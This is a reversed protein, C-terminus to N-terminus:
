DKDTEKNELLIQEQIVKMTNQNNITNDTLQTTLSLTNTDQMGYYNKSLFMYLVPNINGHLASEEQFSQCVRVANKLCNAIPSNPNSINSYITEKDMRLYVALSAISPIMDCDYCLAFFESCEQRCIDENDLAFPMNNGMKDLFARSVLAKNFKKVNEQKLFESLKNQNRNPKKEMLTQIAEEKTIKNRNAM